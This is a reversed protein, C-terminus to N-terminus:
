ATASRLGALSSRWNALSRARASHTFTSADATPTTAYVDVQGSLIIALGLGVEGIAALAEGAAFRRIEGFRRAREIDTADLHPFIQDRRTEIISPKSNSM